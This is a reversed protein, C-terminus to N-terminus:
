LNQLIEFIKNKLEDFNINNNDDIKLSVNKNANIKNEIEQFYNEVNKFSKQILVESCVRKINGYKQILTNIIIEIIYKKSVENIPIKEKFQKIFEDYKKRSNENKQYDKLVKEDKFIKGFNLTHTEKNQIINIVDALINKINKNEEKSINTKDIVIEMFKEVTSIKKFDTALQDIYISNNIILSFYKEKFTKRIKDIKIDNAVINENFSNLIKKFSSYDGLNKFTNPNDDINTNLNENINYNHVFTLISNIQNLKNKHKDIGYNDFGNIINYLNKITSIKSKFDENEFIESIIKNIENNILVIEKPNNLNSSRKNLLEFINSYKKNLYNFIELFKKLSEKIYSEYNLKLDKIYEDSNGSYLKMSEEYTKLNINKNKNPNINIVIGESKDKNTRSLRCITQFMSHPQVIPQYIYMRIMSPVDFGTRWKYVVIVFNFLNSNKNKYDNSDTQEKTTIKEEDNSVVVRVNNGKLNFINKNENKSLIDKIYKQLEYANNRDYAILMAKPNMKNHNKLNVNWDEVIFKAVRKLTNENKSYIEDTNIENSLPNKKNKDIENLYNTSKKIKDISDGYDISHNQFKVEVISGDKIAQSYKYSTIEEGFLDNTTTMDGSNDYIPTATFGIFYSNPLYKNHMLYSWSDENESNNRQSKIYDQTRHIEDVIVIFKKKKVNINDLISKDLDYNKRFRQITFLTIGKKSSTQMKEFINKENILSIETSKKIIQINKLSTDTKFNKYIQELISIRDVVLIIQLHNTTNNKLLKNILFIMSMTKGSGATHNFFGCKSTDLTNNQDKDQNIKNLINQFMKEVGYFQYYKTIIKRKDYYFVYNQILSIFRNKNYIGKILTEYPSIENEINENEIYKWFNILNKNTSINAQEFIGYVAESKNILTSFFNYRLINSNYLSSSFYNNLLEFSKDLNDNLEDILIFSIPIGNLYIIIINTTTNLNELKYNLSNKEFNQFNIIKISKNKNKNDNISITGAENNINEIFEKNSQITAYFTNKIFEKNNNMYNKSLNNNKEISNFLKTWNIGIENNHSLKIFNQNELLTIIKETLNM